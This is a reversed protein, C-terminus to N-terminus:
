FMALLKDAITKYFTNDIAVSTNNEFYVREKEGERAVIYIEKFGESGFLEVAGSIVVSGMLRQARMLEVMLDNGQQDRGNGVERYDYSGFETAIFRGILARCGDEDAAAVFYRIDEGLPARGFETRINTRGPVEFTFYDM